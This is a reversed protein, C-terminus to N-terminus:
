AIGPHETLYADVIHKDFVTQICHAVFVAPGFLVEALSLWLHSLCIWQKEPNTTSYYNATNIIARAIGVIVNVGPICVLCKSVNNLLMRESSWLRHHFNAPNGGTQRIKEDRQHVAVRWRDPTEFGLAPHIDLTRLTTM